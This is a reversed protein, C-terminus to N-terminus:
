LDMVTVPRLCTISKITYHAICKGVISLFRSHVEGLVGDPPAHAGPDHCDHAKREDETAAPDGDGRGSGGGRGRLGHDGLRGLLDDLLLRLFLLLRLLLSCFLRRGCVRGDSADIGPALHRANCQTRALGRVLQEDDDITLHGAGEIRAKAAGAHVRWVAQEAHVHLVRVAVAVLVACAHRERQEEVAAVGDVDTVLEYLPSPGAWSAAAMPTDVQAVPCPRLPDVVARGDTRADDDVSAIM